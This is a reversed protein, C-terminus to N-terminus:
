CWNDFSVVVRHASEKPAYRRCKMVKMEGYTSPNQHSSFYFLEKPNYYGYFCSDCAEKM